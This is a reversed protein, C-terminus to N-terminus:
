ELVYPLLVDRRILYGDGMLHLGDNTIDARLNGDADAYRDYSDIFTYGHQAAARGVITNIDRITQEKGILRKYRAFSNNIPMCSEIYLRTRPSTATITDALSIIAGAISDATLDHSVDNVGILLFIKEPQGPLIAGLRERVGQVIDGSIGRNIVRPNNFLESWECGNTISNGLMVINTSDVPLRDFLSARQYYFETYKEAAAPWALVIALLITLLHRYTM